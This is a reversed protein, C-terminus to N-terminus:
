PCYAQVKLSIYAYCYICVSLCVTYKEGATSALISRHYLTRSFPSGDSISERYPATPFTECKIESASITTSTSHTTLEFRRIFYYAYVVGHSGVTFM